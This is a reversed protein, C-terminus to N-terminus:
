PKEQPHQTTAIAAHDAAEAKRLVSAFCDDEAGNDLANQFETMLLDNERKTLKLVRMRQKPTHQEAM